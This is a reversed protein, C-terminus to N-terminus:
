NSMERLDTVACRAGGGTPATRIHQEFPLSPLWVLTSFFENPDAYTSDWRGTDLFGERFAVGDPVANRRFPYQMKPSHTSCRRENCYSRGM